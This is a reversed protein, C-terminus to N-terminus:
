PTEVTAAFGSGDMGQHHEHMCLLVNQATIQM